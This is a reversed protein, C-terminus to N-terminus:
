KLINNEVQGGTQGPPGSGVWRSCCVLKILRWSNFVNVMVLNKSFLIDHTDDVDDWSDDGLMGHCTQHKLPGSSQACIGISSYFFIQRQKSQKLSM